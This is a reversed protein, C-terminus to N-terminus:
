RKRRIHIITKSLGGKILIAKKIIGDVVLQTNKFHYNITKRSNGNIVYLRPLNSNDRTDLNIYTKGNKNFVNSPRWIGDSSIIYNSTSKISPKKTSVSKIITPKSSETKDKSDFISPLTTKKTQEKGYIFSISPLWSAKTSVLKINYIRRDTFIILNTMINAKNPKVLVFPRDGDIKDFKWRDPDGSKLNQIREGKELKIVTANFPKCILSPMNDGYYFALSGDPQKVIKSNNNMWAKAMSVSKKEMSNLSYSESFLLIPSLISLLFVKKM